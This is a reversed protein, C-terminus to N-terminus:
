VESDFRESRLRKQQARRRKSTLRRRKASRPVRTARREPPVDLANQLLEVFRELAAQRNDGQRRHRDSSVQLVGSKNIRTALHDRLLAKHEPALSPSSELDFHLTMRSNVKNVNQGGPGRSRSATFGLESPDIAIEDSIAIGEKM